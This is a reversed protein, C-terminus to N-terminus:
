MEQNLRNADRLRLRIKYLREQERVLQEFAVNTKDRETKLAITKKDVEKGQADAKLEAEAAQKKALALRDKQDLLDLERKMLENVISHHQAAFLIRETQRDKGAEVAMKDLERAQEDLAHALMRIGVVNLARKYTPEETPDGKKKKDDDTPLVDVL